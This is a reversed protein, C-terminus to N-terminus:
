RLVAQLSLAGCFALAQNPYPATALCYDMVESVFGPVRLLESPLAEPENVFYQSEDEEAAAIQEAHHEMVATVRPNADYKSCSDAITEVERLDLQPNCRTANEQILAAVIADHSMGAARMGCGLSFLTKNRMSEPIRNAVQPLSRRSSGSQARGKSGKLAELIWAPPLPLGWPGVEIEGDLWKYPKGDVVSPAVIIYGGNARTDVKEAIVGQTNRYNSGDPARFVFHRGGHPTISVHAVALERGKDGLSKFWANEAGDVDVVLLGDTRIAWNANPWKDSWAEITAEDTTAELLGRQTLPKKNGPACPFVAYGLEALRLQPSIM